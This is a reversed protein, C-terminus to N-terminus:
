ISDRKLVEIWQGNRTWRGVPRMHLMAAVQELSAQPEYGYYRHLFDIWAPHALLDWPDWATSYLVLVDAGGNELGAINAAGFDKVERVKMPRSVYGFEPRRLAGALPFSTAITSDPYRAQVFEAARQNLSVFTAFALNNELPFPYPPNIFNALILAPFLVFQSALRLKSTYAAFAVAFAIYLIPM